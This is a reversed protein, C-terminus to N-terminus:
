RMMGIVRELADAFADVEELTNYAAFSARCTATVGFHALLPQACHNGTRIAVGLQDILLVECPAGIETSVIDITLRDSAPNPSVRLTSTSTRRGPKVSLLTVADAWLDIIDVNDPPDYTDHTIDLRASKPGTTKPSFRIKITATPVVMKQEVELRIPLNQEVDVWVRLRAQSDAPTLSGKTPRSGFGLKWGSVEFGVARRGHITTEGLNRDPSERVELLRGLWNEAGGHHIAEASTIVRVTDGQEFFMELMQGEVRLM